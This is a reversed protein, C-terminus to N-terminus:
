GREALAREEVGIRHYLLLANALSFAIAIAWADFALPLVAIEATVILYNPHRVWRYPGRRVLPAGPLSLVRTTWYPGLTAVVWIRAAQLLLFLALLPWSPVRDAPILLFVALLWAGHLLIFLPYHAAGSEVAGRSRLRSENRRAYALEGLRQAAVLLAVGQAWGLM